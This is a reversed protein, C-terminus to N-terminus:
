STIGFSAQDGKTMPYKTLDWEKIPVHMWKPKAAITTIWKRENDIQVNSSLAIDRPLESARKSIEDTILKVKNKLDFIVQITATEGATALRLNGLDKEFKKGELTAM